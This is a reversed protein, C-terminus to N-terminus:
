LVKDRSIVAACGAKKHKMGALQEWENKECNYKFVTNLKQHDKNTGGIIIVDESHKVTAMHSMPFPLPHM